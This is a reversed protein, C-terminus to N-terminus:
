QYLHSSVQHACAPSPPQPPDSAPRAPPRLSASLLASLYHVSHWAQPALAAASIRPVSSAPAAQQASGALAPRRQAATPRALTNCAHRGHEASRTQTAYIFQAAQAVEEVACCICLTLLFSTCLLSCRPRAATDHGRVRCGGWRSWGASSVADTQGDWRYEKHVHPQSAQRADPPGVLKTAPSSLQASSKFSETSSRFLKLAGAPGESATPQVSEAAGARDAQLVAAVRCRQSLVGRKSGVHM